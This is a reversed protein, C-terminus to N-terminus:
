RLSQSFEGREAQLRERLSSPSRFGGNYEDPVLGQDEAAKYISSTAPQVPESISPAPATQAETAKGSDGALTSAGLMASVVLAVTCAITLQWTKLRKWSNNGTASQTVNM